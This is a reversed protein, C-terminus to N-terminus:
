MSNTRLLLPTGEAALNTRSEPECDFGAGETLAMGYVASLLGAAICLGIGMLAKSGGQVNQGPQAHDGEKWEGAIGCFVGPM